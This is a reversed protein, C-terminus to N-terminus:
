KLNLEAKSAKQAAELSQPLGAPAQVSSQGGSVNNSDAAFWWLVDNGSKGNNLMGVGKNAYWRANQNAYETPNLPYSGQDDAWIFSIAKYYQGLGSGDSPEGATEFNMYTMAGYLLGAYELWAPNADEDKKLIEVRKLIDSLAALQAKKGGKPDVAQPAAVVVIVTGPGKEARVDSNVKNADNSALVEMNNQVDEVAIGKEKELVARIVEKCKPDSVCENMRKVFHRMEADSVRRENPKPNAKMPQVASSTKFSAPTALAGSTYKGRALKAHSTIVAYDKMLEPDAGKDADILKKAGAAFEAKEQADKTGKMAVTFLWADRSGSEILKKALAAAKEPQNLALYGEAAQRQAAPDGSELEALKALVAQKAQPTGEMKALMQQFPLKTMDKAGSDYVAGRVLDEGKVSAGAQPAILVFFIIGKM